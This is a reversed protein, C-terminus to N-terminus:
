AFWEPAASTLARLFDLSAQPEVAEASKMDLVFRGGREAFHSYFSTAFEHRLRRAGAPSGLAERVAQRMEAPPRALITELIPTLLAAATREDRRFGLTLRFLDAAGTAGVMLVSVEAFNAGWLTGEFLPIHLNDTIAASAFVGDAEELRPVLDRIGYVKEPEFGLSRIRGADAPTLDYRDEWRDIKKACFRATSRVGLYHGASASAIVEAAGGINGWVGDLPRANDAFRGWQLGAAVAPFADGDTDTRVNVGLDLMTEIPHRPRTLTFANIEETGRAAAVARGIEALDTDVDVGDVEFLQCKNFYVDPVPRIPSETIFFLSGSSLDAVTSKTTGEVADVAMAYTRVGAAAREERTVAGWRPDGFVQGSYLSPNGGKEGPKLRVGEGIVIECVAGAMAESLAFIGEAMACTAARDNREKAAEKAGKRSTEPLDLLAGRGTATVALVALGATAMLRDRHDAELPGRPPRVPHRLRIQRCATLRLGYLDLVGENATNWADVEEPAFLRAARSFLRAPSLLAAPIEARSGTLRGRRPM